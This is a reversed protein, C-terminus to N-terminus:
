RILGISQMCTRVKDEQEPSLSPTYDAHFRGEFGLRNMAATFGPFVGVEVFMDRLKLIRDLDDSAQRTDGQELSRYMSGALATTCSFMGDLNKRIGYAYATDFVDLGSFLIHFDPKIEEKARSLVRATPLDGTKIGGINPHKMLDIATAATIKTKTVGPLDYLYVPYPSLDAIHTFFALVESQTLPFYYPTTAVVGDIPLGELSRIRDAVRGVSNDMVGVQM